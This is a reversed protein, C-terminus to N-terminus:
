DDLDYAPISHTVEAVESPPGIKSGVQGICRIASGLVTVRPSSYIASHMDTRM